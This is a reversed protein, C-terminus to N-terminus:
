LTVEDFVVGAADKARMVAGNGDVTLLLYHQGGRSLVTTPKAVPRSTAAAAGAGGTVFYQQGDAIGHEYINEHGSVIAEVGHRRAVPVISALAAAGRSGGTWPGWHLVVLEHVAGHAEAATLDSELWVAQDDLRATSDLLAVHVAGVDISYARGAVGGSTGFLQSFRDGWPEMDREGPAPALPAASLLPATTDFFLQWQSDDGSQVVDGTHVVLDPAEAAVADLVASPLTTDARTNGIIAIKVPADPAMARLARPASHVAQALRNCADRRQLYKWFESDDLNPETFGSKAPPSVLSACEPPLASAEATAVYYSYVRGPVLGDLEVEHHMSWGGDYQKGDVVLWSPAVRDSEWEVRTTTPTPQVRYPGKVVQVVNDATIEDRVLVAQIDVPDGTEPIQLALVNGHAQLLSPFLKLDLTYVRTPAPPRADLELEDSDTTWDLGGGDQVDNGLPKGANLLARTRTSLTITLWRYREVPGAVDFDARLCVGGAPVSAMPLTVKQWSSDDFASSGFAMPCGGAGPATIRVADGRAILPLQGDSGSCHAFAAVCMLAALRANTSVVGGRRSVKASYGPGFGTGLPLFRKEM